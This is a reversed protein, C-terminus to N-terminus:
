RSVRFSFTGIRSLVTVFEPCMIAPQVTTPPGCAPGSVEEVQGTYTGTCWRGGLRRPRLAVAMRQGAVTARPTLSVSDICGHRPRAPAASLQYRHDESGVRGSPSPATFHVTFTSHAHGRSPTVRLRPPAGTSAAAGCAAAASVLAALIPPAVRLRRVV